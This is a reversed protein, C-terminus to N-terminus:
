QAIKWSVAHPYSGQQHNFKAYIHLYDANNLSM